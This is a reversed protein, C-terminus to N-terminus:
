FSSPGPSGLFGAFASIPASGIISAIAFRTSTQRNRGSFALASAILAAVASCGWIAFFVLMFHILRDIGEFSALIPM